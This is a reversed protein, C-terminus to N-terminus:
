KTLRHQNSGDANMVYIQPPRHGIGRDFAIKRGGPSWAPDGESARNHTLRHESSGDASIVYIQTHGEPRGPLEGSTVGARGNAFAIKRGDPSWAPDPDDSGNHTLQRHGRGDADVTHIEYTYTGGNKGTGNNFAIKRGDPSWAPNADDGFNTLQHPRSGDANIIYIVGPSDRQFAIRRGDPSWTPHAAFTKFRTLKRQKSGDAKMIWIESTYGDGRVLAIKRGDPSWAPQSDQASRPRTLRHQRSGDANMVWIQWHREFAIKRGNPSWAPSSANTASSSNVVLPQNRGGANSPLAASISITGALFLGVIGLSLRM